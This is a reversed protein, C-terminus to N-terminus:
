DSDTSTKGLVDRAQKLMDMTTEASLNSLFTNAKAYSRSARGANAKLESLFLATASRVAELLVEFQVSVFTYPTGSSVSQKHLDIGMAVLEELEEVRSPAWAYGLPRAKGAKSLDSDASFNHVVGCRAGYLDLATCKLGTNPLVYKDVWATFRVKVETADSDLWSAVDITSYFLILAPMRLRLAICQDIAAFLQVFAVELAAQNQTNSSVMTSFFAIAFRGVIANLMSSDFAWPQSAGANLCRRVVNQIAKKASFRGQHSHKLPRPNAIRFAWFNECKANTLDIVAQTVVTRWQLM